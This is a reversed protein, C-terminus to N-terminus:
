FWSVRHQTQGFADKFSTVKVGEEGMEIAKNAYAMAKSKSFFVKGNKM